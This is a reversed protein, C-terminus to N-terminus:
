GATSQQERGALWADVDRLRYRVARGSYRVFRPGCGRYRWDALTRPTIRLMEAAEDPKLISDPSM